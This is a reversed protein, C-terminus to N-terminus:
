SSWTCIMKVKSWVSLWALVTDSVKKCALHEEQHQVLLTLASFVIAHWASYFTMQIAQLTYCNTSLFSVELASLSLVCQGGCLMAANQGTIMEWEVSPLLCLQGQHRTVYQPPKGTSLRDGMGTSVLGSM